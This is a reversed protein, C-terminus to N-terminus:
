KVGSCLIRAHRIPSERFILRLLCQFPFAFVEHLFDLHFDETIENGLDISEDGERICNILISMSAESYATMGPRSFFFIRQWSAILCMVMSHCEAFDKTPRVSSRFDCSVCMSCRVASKVHSAELGVKGSLKSSSDYRDIPFAQWCGSAAALAGSQLSRVAQLQSSLDLVAPCSSASRTKM